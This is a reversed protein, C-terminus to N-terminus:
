SFNPGRQPQGRLFVLRQVWREFHTFRTAFYLGLCSLDFLCYFVAVGSPPNASSIAGPRGLLAAPWAWAGAATGCLELYAVLLYMAAFFLRARPVALLLATFLAFCVLGFSDHAFRWLALSWGAGLLFLTPWLWRARRRVEPLRVFLFISAYLVTHGPPVYLPIGGQRYEYMGLGLSFVVEGVTAAFLGVLLLRRLRHSATAYLLLWFTFTAAASAVPVARGDLATVALLLPPVSAILLRRHRRLREVM